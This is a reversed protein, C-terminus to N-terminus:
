EHRLAEIPDMLAARRAPYIGFLIGIAVSISFSLIVSTTTVIAKQDQIFFVILSPIIFGVAVGLLGGVGSLVVTEILFQQTIDRQKAGLARRIGIERTRETVTALMINMIGIGGVLLSIAAITGLIIAFQRAQKEASLLLDYPVTMEVDKKSHYPEWSAQVLPVTPLVDDIMKVQVTIQTLQTEEAQRLGSRNDVIREGFRLKCTNLPIYVDKNFDQAALSGGIGASSARKATVGVVTYYDSGVKVSQNLPDEYPFLKEATDAALVAYNQYKENDSAMLFRGKAMQLLNFEAYDHTTGVVRGEIVNPGRRIQKRIERIPLIKHITPITEVMRDYDSYKLGFNLIMTPRGSTAAQAEDSPKVSRIIINRAGLAGIQEQADRSTGEAIALMSIVAAVGFVIGLVTLGSRLKHLLLSKMGLKLARWIRGM